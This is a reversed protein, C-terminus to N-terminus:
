AANNRRRRVIGFIGAMGTAMLLYTSPEPVTSTQTLFGTVAVSTGAVNKTLSVDNVALTFTGGNYTFNRVTNDFDFTVGGASQNVTGLLQASYLTSTPSVGAPATFSVNLVFRQGTFDFNSVPGAPFMLSGLNDTNPTGPFNGIAAVGGVTTVNFTSNTYTLPGIVDTRTGSTTEPSCVAVTYFCGNTFGTFTVQASAPAAFAFTAAAAAAALRAVARM